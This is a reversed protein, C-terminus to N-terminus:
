EVWEVVGAILVVIGPPATRKVTRPPRLAKSDAEQRVKRRGRNGVSRNVVSGAAAWAASAVARAAATGQLSGAGMWGSAGSV